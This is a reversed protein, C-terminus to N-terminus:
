NFLLLFGFMVKLHIFKQVKCLWLYIYINANFYLKKDYIVTNLSTQLQDLRIEFEFFFVM